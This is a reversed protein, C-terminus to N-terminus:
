GLLDLENVDQKGETIVEVRSSDAVTAIYNGYYKSQGVINGVVVSGNASAGSFQMGDSRWSTKVISGVSLQKQEYIWGSSDCLCLSNYSGVVFSQGCPQWSVCTIAHHLASSVYLCFGSTNFIRYCCDECGAIVHDNVNNWDISLITGREQAFGEWEVTESSNQIQIISIRNGHAVAIAESFANRKSRISGWALSHIPQGYSVLKTRPNLSRSWLRVVGDEGSTAIISGDNNWSVCIGAGSHASPVKKELSGDKQFLRLSGDSCVAALIQMSPSSINSTALMSPSWSICTVHVGLQIVPAIQEVDMTDIEVM